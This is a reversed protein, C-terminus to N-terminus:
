RKDTTVVSFLRAEEEGNGGMRYKYVSILDHRLRRMELSFQGQERLKECKLSAGTGEDYENAKM